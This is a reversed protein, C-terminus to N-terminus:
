GGACIKGPNPRSQELGALYSEETAPEFGGPLEFLEALRDREEPSTAAPMAAAPQAPARKAPGASAQPAPPSEATPAQPAAPAPAATPVKPNLKGDRAKKRIDALDM